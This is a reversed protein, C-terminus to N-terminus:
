YGGTAPLFFTYMMSSTWMSEGEANLATNFVSSSGGAWARNMRAVVSGCFIGAVMRERQMRKSKLSMGRSSKSCSMFRTNLAVPLSYSSSATEAMARAPAPLALSLRDMASM